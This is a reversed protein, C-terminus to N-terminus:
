DLMIDQTPKRIRKYTESLFWFLTSSYKTAHFYPSLRPNYKSKFRCLRPHNAWTMEFFRFNNESAWKIIEWHLFDNAESVAEKSKYSGIWPYIRDGVLTCVLGSVTNGDQKLLFVKINKPHMLKFVQQLFEESMRHGVGAEDMRALYSKLIHNFDEEVGEVVSLNHKEGRKINRRLDAKFDEWIKELGDGLDLVYDYLPEIQYGSWSFARADTLGPPTSITAYNAKLKKFIYEDVQKQITWYLAERKGQKLENYDAIVPGLYYAGMRSPPSAVMNLLNNKYQFLPFVGALSDGKYCLIPHLICGTKKGFFNVWSHKQMLQIWDWLHFATGHVSEEVLDDWEGAKEESASEVRIEM